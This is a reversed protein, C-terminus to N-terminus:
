FFKCVFSKNNILCVNKLMFFNFNTLLKNENYSYECIKGYIDVAKIEDTNEFFAYTGFLGFACRYQNVQISSHYEEDYQYYNTLISNLVLGYENHYTLCKM